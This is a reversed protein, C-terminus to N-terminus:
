RASARIYDNIAEVAGHYGQRNSGAGLAYEQGDILVVMIMHSYKATGVVARKIDSLKMTAQTRTMGFSTKEVILMGDKHSLTIRSQSTVLFTGFIALGLAFLLALWGGPVMLDRSYLFIALGLSLVALFLTWSGFSYYPPDVIVVRPTREIVQIAEPPFILAAGGM